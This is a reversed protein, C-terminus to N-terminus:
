KEKKNTSISEKVREIDEQLSNMFNRWDFRTLLAYARPLSEDIKFVIRGKKHLNYISNTFPLIYLSIFINSLLISSLLIGFLAGGIKDIVFPFHIKREKTLTYIKVFLFQKLIWLILFLIFFIIWFSIVLAEREDPILYNRIYVSMGKFLALSMGSAFFLNIFNIFENFLGGKAGITIRYIIVIILFLNVFSYIM